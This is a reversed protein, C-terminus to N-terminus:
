YNIGTDSISSMTDSVASPGVSKPGQSYDYGTQKKNDTSTTKQVTPATSQQGVPDPTQPAPNDSRGGFLKNAVKGLCM